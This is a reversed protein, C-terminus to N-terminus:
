AAESSSKGMKWGGASACVDDGSDDPSDYYAGCNARDTPFAIPLNSAQYLGISGILKTVAIRSGKGEIM